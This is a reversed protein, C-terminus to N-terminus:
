FDYRLGLTLINSGGDVGDFLGFVGSRHHVRGVVSWHRWSPAAFTLELLLYNLLENTGGEHAHLEEELAPKEFAYSLGDGLAFTTPMVEHWPFRTWRFIVLANVELHDQDGFHQGVQEEAEWRYSENRYFVQSYAVVAVYSDVPDVRELVLLENPLSNDVYRGGYVTLGRDGPAACSALLLACLPLPAGHLRM